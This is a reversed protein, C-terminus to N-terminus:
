ECNLDPRDEDPLIKELIYILQPDTEQSIWRGDSQCVVVVEWWHPPKDWYVWGIDRLDVVLSNETTRGVSKRIQEANSWVHVEFAEGPQLEGTWDWSFRV